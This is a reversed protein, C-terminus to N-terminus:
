IGTVNNKTDNSNYLSSLIRLILRPIFLHLNVDGPKHKVQSKSAHGTSTVNPSFHACSDLYLREQTRPM